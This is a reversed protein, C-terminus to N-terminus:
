INLKPFDIELARIRGICPNKNPPFRTFCLGKPCQNVVFNGNNDVFHMFFTNNICFFDNAKLFKSKTLCMFFLFILNLKM